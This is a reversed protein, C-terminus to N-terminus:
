CANDITFLHVGFLERCEACVGAQDMHIPHDAGALHVHVTYSGIAWGFREHALALPNLPRFRAPSFSYRPMTRCANIPPRKADARDSARQNKQCNGFILPLNFRLRSRDMKMELEFLLSQLARWAQM